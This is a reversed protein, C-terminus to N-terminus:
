CGPIDYGRQGQPTPLHEVGTCGDLWGQKHQWAFGLYVQDILVYLVAAGIFLGDVPAWPSPKTLVNVGRSREWRAVIGSWFGEGAVREGWESVIVISILLSEM